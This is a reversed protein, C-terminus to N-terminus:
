NCRVIHLDFSWKFVLMCVHAIVRLVVVTFCIAGQM